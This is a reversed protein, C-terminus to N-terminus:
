FYLNGVIHLNLGPNEQTFETYSDRVQKSLDKAKNFIKPSVGPLSEKPAGAGSINMASYTQNLSRFIRAKEPTSVTVSNLNMLYQATNVLVQMSKDDKPAINAEVIETLQEELVDWPASRESPAAAVRIPFDKELNTNEADLAEVIYGEETVASLNFGYAGFEYGKKHYQSDQGFIVKNGDIAYALNEPAELCEPNPLVNLHHLSLLQPRNLLSHTNALLMDAGLGLPDGSTYNTDLIGTLSNHLSVTERMGIDESRDFALPSSLYALCYITDIYSTKLLELNEESRENLYAHIRKVTTDSLAQIGESDFSLDNSCSSPTNINASTVLFDKFTLDEGDYQPELKLSHVLAISSNLPCIRTQFSLQHLYLSFSM